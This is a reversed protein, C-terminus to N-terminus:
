VWSLRDDPKVALMTKIMNCLVEPVSEDMPKINKTFQLYQQYGGDEIISDRINKPSEFPFVAKGQVLPNLLQYAIIGMGWMDVKDTYTQQNLVQPALPYTGVKSLQPGMTKVAIGFDAVLCSTKDNVFINKLKLDRHIVFNSHITKLGVLIDILMSIRKELVPYPTQRTLYQQLDGNIYYPM